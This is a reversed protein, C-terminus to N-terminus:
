FLPKLEFTTKKKEPKPSKMQVSVDWFAELKASWKFLKIYENM